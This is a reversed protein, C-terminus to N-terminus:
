GHTPQAFRPIQAVPCRGGCLYREGLGEESNPLMDGTGPARTLFYTSQTAIHERDNSAPLEQPM